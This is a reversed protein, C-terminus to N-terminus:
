EREIRIANLNKIEAFKQVAKPAFAGVTSLAVLYILTLPIEHGHLWGLVITISLVWALALSWASMVRMASPNGLDDTMYEVKKNEM